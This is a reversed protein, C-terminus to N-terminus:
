LGGAGKSVAVMSAPIYGAVIMRVQMLKNKADSPTIRLDVTSLVQPANRVASMLNIWQEIPCRFLVTLPVQAYDEGAAKVAGFESAEMNIGQASLLDKMLQQMQASALAPTAAKLLGKETEGLAKAAADADAAVRPRQRAIEQLRRLRRETKEASSSSAAGPDQRSPIGFQLVLALALAVGLILLAKKDRETLSAM